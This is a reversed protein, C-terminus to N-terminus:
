LVKLIDETGVYEQCTFGEGYEVGIRRGHALARGNLIQLFAPSSIPTAPESSAENFFQSDFCMVLDIKKEMFGSIDVVIDPKMHHDQIYHFVKRPRWAEQPNGDLITTYKRLGALFCAESILKAANGHDPHRDSIANALVVQPQCQRIVKIIAKKNEESNSVAGDPIGINKRFLAGAYARAKEAEKKRLEANGRTGLEGQTLDLIGVSYGISIQKLITGGCGLEVDDPHAGIALIDVKGVM